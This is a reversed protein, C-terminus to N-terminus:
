INAVHSTLANCNRQNTKKKKTYTHEIRSILNRLATFACLQKRETPKMHHKSQKCQIQKTNATNTWHTCLIASSIAENSNIIRRIIVESRLTNAHFSILMHYLLIRHSFAMTLGLMRVNTLHGDATRKNRQFVISMHWRYSCSITGNLVALPNVIGLRLRFGDIVIQVAIRKKETQGFFLRFFYCWLM